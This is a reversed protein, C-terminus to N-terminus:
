VEKERQVIISICVYMSKQYPVFYRYFVKAKEVYSDIVNGEANLLLDM